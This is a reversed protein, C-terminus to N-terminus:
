ETKSDMLINNLCDNFTKKNKFKATEPGITHHDKKSQSKNTLFM